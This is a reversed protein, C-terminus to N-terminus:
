ADQANQLLEAILGTWGTQHSAGLGAGNDGHFYEYFLIYDRWRQDSQFRGQGGFVARQGDEDRLFIRSLRRALDNAVQELTMMVGSGTPCEVTFADGFYRYYKRLSEILLYNLPFWIPGRWNSNGGFLGSRSEAPWYQISFDQGGIHLHYPQEHVKSVSRIGFPSLFESEALMYGLVRRLRDETPMAFLHASGSGAIDARALNGSLHPRHRCLWDISRAFDTFRDLTTQGVTEVAILPMLGVLSRVKLPVVRGDPLKLVDYFFGDTDDWLGVGGRADGSIAQAIWLFHEYFKIAMDEYASDTAALELAMNMMVLCYFGMWATGDSQNIHGGTPLAASRDFLSINDLGLFGGQFVNRGEADKRNIWWTFNLLMKNFIRKLFETDQKGDLAYVRWAAWAHVPPNVDGFAWEYAPLQGNPHMYWERTLLLLQEKAFTTDVMALPVCHFALDWGAYWPYEWKDPMSIIDFNNLHQWDHNRGYKRQQPPQALPDGNLWQEVDYYFLQKSWLMGALAQRQIRQVDASFKDGSIAAYFEDADAARAAFVAAMDAFPTEHERHSLRLYVTDTQGTAVRLRYTPAAKTGRQEPNVAAAEGNVIYRHFADKVYPTANQLGFLRAANTENETFLHEDANQAYLRYSGLVPHEAVVVAGDLWLEPKKSVNNMPGAPYGWSWTNRFWLTPLLTIPADEPGHNTISIRILLDEADAKAYEVLVDFYREEDFVGTDLLEYEFDEFGRRGNEAVLAGYPYERQPYKYLMKMYSHTPTSDLYFYYEKVDEGHNGQSGTLGFLREKLIPDAGNWLALAFCLYQKDDSIGALGDEGWRYVRSRAHDHPFFEWATGHESYDERVTGWARESLYPGWHLWNTKGSRQQNQREYEAISM